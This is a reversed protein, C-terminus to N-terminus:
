FCTFLYGGRKTVFIVGHPLTSNGELWVARLEVLLELFTYTSEESVLAHERPALVHPLGAFLFECNVVHVVIFGRAATICYWQENGHTGPTTM